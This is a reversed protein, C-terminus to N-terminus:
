PLNAEMWRGVRNRPLFDGFTGKTLYLSGLISLCVMMVIAFGTIWLMLVTNEPGLVTKILKWPDSLATNADVRDSPFPLPSPGDRDEGVPHEKAYKAPLVQVDM